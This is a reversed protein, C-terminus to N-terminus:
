VTNFCHSAISLRQFFLSSEKQRSTVVTIQRGLEFIFDVSTKCSSGHCGNAVPM